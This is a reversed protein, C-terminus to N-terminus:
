TGRHRSLALRVCATLYATAISVVGGLCPEAERDGCRRRCSRGNGYSKHHIAVDRINAGLSVLNVPRRARAFSSCLPPASTRRLGDHSVRATGGDLHFGDVLTSVAGSTTDVLLIREGWRVVGRRGDPLWSLIPFIHRVPPVPGEISVFKPSLMSMDYVL